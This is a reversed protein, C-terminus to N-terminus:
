RLKNVKIKERAQIIVVCELDCFPKQLVQLVDPVHCLKNDKGSSWESTASTM